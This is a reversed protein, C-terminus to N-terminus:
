LVLTKKLVKFIGNLPIEDQYYNDVSKGYVICCGQNQSLLPDYGHMGKYKTVRHFFDPFVLVGTNAWWALDGYRRDGWPINQKKALGQDIFIGRNNFDESSELEKTFILKAKDSFFWIRVLTSDLFYIYDKKLKLSNYKAIKLIESEANFYEEINAMGHDGLFIFKSKSNHTLAKETYDKLSKDLHELGKKLEISKPGYKHGLYDPTSIYILYFYNNNKYMDQLALNMRDLDTGNSQLNLATFSDYFYNKNNNHILSFISSVNYANPNRIDIRDETLAWYPLLSFPINYINMEKTVTNKLLYSIFQRFLIQIIKAPLLEKLGYFLIIKEVYDLLAAYKIQKFPSNEPDYGIATFFGSENPKLGTFIETRECFGFNPIVKKYYEGGQSCSFLFPTDIENVYDHRMADLVFLTTSM